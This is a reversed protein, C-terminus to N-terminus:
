QRQGSARLFEHISSDAAAIAALATKIKSCTQAHATIAVLDAAGNTAAQALSTYPLASIHSYTPTTVLPVGCGRQERELRSCKNGRRDGTISGFSATPSGAPSLYLARGGNGPKEGVRSGAETLRLRRQRDTTILGVVRELRKRVHNDSRASTVRFPFRPITQRARSAAVLHTLWMLEKPRSRHDIWTQPRPFGM